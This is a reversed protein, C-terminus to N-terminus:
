RNERKTKTSYKNMPYKRGFSPGFFYDVIGDATNPFDLGLEEMIEDIENKM